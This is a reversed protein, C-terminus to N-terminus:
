KQKKIDHNMKLIRAGSLVALTGVIAVILTITTNGAKPIIDPVVTPDDSKNIRVKPTDTSTKTKDTKDFDKYTIVVKENTDLIKNVISPSYNDKLTLTYQVTATEGSALEDISWVIKREDDIAQSITGKSPQSIYVFDFNDVIEKPFFDNIKIDTISQSQPLLDNYIDNTITEEIKEDPIYYFKGYTPSEPTGFLREVIQGFTYPPVSGQAQEDKNVGTLMTIIKYKNNLTNLTSKTKNIVNDGYGQQSESLGLALNPVGDSLVIIYKNNSEASFQQSALTIGADLDTRPGDTAITDIKNNLSSADNSLTSIVAADSELKGWDDMDTSSSFSVIGVKLKTNDKLMNTILEKASSYVLEQRTPNTDTKLSNSNDLVLVVEGTPQSAPADNKIKLQITVQRKNLDYSVMKKEFDCYDNIKITCVNDEVIEFTETAEAFVYSSIMILVTFIAIALFIKKM